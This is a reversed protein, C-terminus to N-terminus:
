EKMQIELESHNQVFEQKKEEEEAPSLEPAIDDSKFWPHELAEQASIRDEQKETIMNQILDKVEPSLNAWYQENFEVQCKRNNELVEKPTKGKFLPRGTLMNYFIVGASFMDSRCNYGKNQLVEPAVYGPSGCCLTLLEKPHSLRTALGFDAIMVDTIMQTSALILNEPKLDRHVVHREHLYALASLFNKLPLM